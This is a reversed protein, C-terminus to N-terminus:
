LLLWGTPVSYRPNSLIGIFIAEHLLIVTEVQFLFRCAFYNCIVAAEVLECLKCKDPFHGTESLIQLKVSNKLMALTELHHTVKVENAYM